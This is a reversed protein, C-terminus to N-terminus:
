LFYHSLKLYIFLNIPSTPLKFLLKFVTTVDKQNPKKKKKRKYSKPSSNIIDDQNTIFHLLSVDTHMFRLFIIKEHKIDNKVTM